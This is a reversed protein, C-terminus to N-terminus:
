GIQGKSRRKNQLISEASLYFSVKGKLSSGPGSKTEKGWMNHDFIQKFSERRHEGDETEKTLRLKQM